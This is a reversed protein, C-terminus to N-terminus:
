KPHIRVVNSAKVEAKLHENEVEYRANLSALKRVQTELSDLEARLERNKDNAAKLKQTKKDRQSKLQKDTLQRVEAAIEPHRNHILSDSVGAEEALAAITLKRDKSVVRPRGHKLRLLANELKKRTKDASSM